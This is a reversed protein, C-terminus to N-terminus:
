RRYLKVKEVNPLWWDFRPQHQISVIDPNDLVLMKRIELSAQKFLHQHYKLFLAKFSGDQLAMELGEQIRQALARNERSTFFYVFYPYYLGITPEVMLHSFQPQYKKVEIWAENIGRPFYDFRKADLMAFLLEYKAVGNVPLLNYKLIRIDNWHSGFGATYKRLQQLSTIKSFVERNDSNILLVRYGLVGQLIPIPIPQFTKELDSNTAFSAIDIGENHELMLKGRGQTMDSEDGILSYAGWSKGTKSLALDLLKIRYEYREDTQFYRIETLATIENAFSLIPFTLFLFIFVCRLNTYFAM